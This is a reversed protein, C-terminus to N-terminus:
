MCGGQAPGCRLSGQAGLGARIGLGGFGPQHSASKDPPAHFPSSWDERPVKLRGEPARLHTGM